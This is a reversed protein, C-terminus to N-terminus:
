QETLYRVIAQIDDDTLQASVRRMMGDSDNARAGSRFDRLQKALYGQDQSALRPAYGPIGLGTPAHCSSCALVGKEPMGRMYLAEGSSANGAISISLLLFLM